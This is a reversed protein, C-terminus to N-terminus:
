RRHKASTGPDRQASPTLLGARQLGDLAHDVVITIDEQAGGHSHQLAAIIGSRTLSGDCLTWVLTATRNLAVLKGNCPAFVYACGDVVVQSSGAARPAVSDDSM